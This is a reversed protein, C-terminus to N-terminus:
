INKNSSKMSPTDYTLTKKLHIENELNMSEEVEQNDGDDEM